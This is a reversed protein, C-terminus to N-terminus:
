RPSTRSRVVRAALRLTARSVRAEDVLRTPQEGLGILAGGLQRHDVPDLVAEGPPEVHLRHVVEDAVGHELDEIGVDDVDADDVALRAEDAERVGDLAAHAERVRGHGDDAEARLDQVRALWQPDVAVRGGRRHRGPLRRDDAALRRAGRQPRREDGPVLGDAHMDMWFRSRSSAKESRSRRRIVVRAELRLTARSFARSDRSAWSRASSIAARDSMARSIEAVSSGDATM